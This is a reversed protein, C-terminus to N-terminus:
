KKNKIQSLSARLAADFTTVNVPGTTPTKYVPTNSNFEIFYIYKSTAHISNYVGDAVVEMNSGSKSIRKLQPTKGSTQYYVYEDTINLIDTRAEDLVTKTNDTLNIRILSYDDHIDIGYVFNGEIIPMYIDENLVKKSTKTNLDLAMLNLNKEYNTYYFTSNQISAPLINSELLVEKEKGDTSIRNLSPIDDTCTYYIDNNSLYVYKGLVRDLCEINKPNDKQVRYVGTTSILFGLGAQGSSGGQYFYLYKGDANISQTQTPVLKEMDSEDPRMRYLSNNDYPNSFYVYGDNECFMGGNYLNGSTNGVTGIPNEPVKKQNYSIIGLTACLIVLFLVITLTLVKKKM